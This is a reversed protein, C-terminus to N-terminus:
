NENAIRMVTEGHCRKPSCFCFLDKGKLKQKIEDRLYKQEDKMIWEEFFDCARDRDKEQKMIFPNGYRSPRGIYVADPGIRDTRKNLLRPSQQRSGEAKANLDAAGTKIKKDKITQINIGM